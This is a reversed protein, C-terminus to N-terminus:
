RIPGEMLKLAFSLKVELEFHTEDVHLLGTVGSGEVHLENGHWEARASFQDKLDAAIRDARKRAEEVGLNHNRRIRMQLTAAGGPDLTFVRIRAALM